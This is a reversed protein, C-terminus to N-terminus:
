HISGSWDCIGCVVRHQPPNSLLLQTRDEYLEAGCSPCAVGSNGADGLSLPLRFKKWFEAEHEQLTKM